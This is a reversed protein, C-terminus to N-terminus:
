SSNRNRRVNSQCSLILPCAMLEVQNISEENYDIMSKCVTFEAKNEKRKFIRSVFLSLNILLVFELVVAQVLPVHM